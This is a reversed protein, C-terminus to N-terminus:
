WAKRWSLYAARAAGVSAETRALQIGQKERKMTSLQTQNAVLRVHNEAATESVRGVDAILKAVAVCISVGGMKICAIQLDPYRRVWLEDHAFSIYGVSDLLQLTSM